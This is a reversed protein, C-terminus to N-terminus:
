ESDEGLHVQEPPVSPEWPLCSADFGAASKHGGGGFKLAVESVDFNSGGRARLSFQWRGDERRFYGVAFPADPNEEALAGVHESCNMYPANMTPVNNGDVLEFRATARAKKGYLDIYRQIARGGETVRMRGLANIADWNGFTMEISSIYASVIDSDPLQHRWLDRDEIYDVLWLERGGNYRPKHQGAKRGLELELEDYLIGSGSRSMDFIIKDGNRQLKHKIRLEGQIDHLAAEATKHHDFILTRSSPIIVDRILTERPYSFDVLWVDRGKCDPPPEGYKAPVFDAEGKFRNFVWAATFGDYCNGHYIFLPKKM